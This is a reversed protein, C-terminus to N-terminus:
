RAVKEVLYEDKKGGPLIKIRDGEKIEGKLIKKGILDGLVLNIIRKM